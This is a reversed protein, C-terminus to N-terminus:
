PGAGGFQSLLWSVVFYASAICGSLIALLILTLVAFFLGDSMVSKRRFDGSDLHRKLLALNRQNSKWYVDFADGALPISGAVWDVMVNAGMRMMTLRSVGARQATRLITFTVLATLADGLGPILGLLADFGFRIRTGPINFVSDMWTALRALDDIESAGPQHRASRHRRSISRQSEDLLDAQPISHTM